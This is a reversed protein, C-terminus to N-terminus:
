TAHLSLSTARHVGASLIRRFVHLSSWWERIILFCVGAYQTEGHASSCHNMFDLTPCMVSRQKKSGRNMDFSFSRTNAIIWHYLDLESAGGKPEAEYGKRAAIMYHSDETWESTASGLANALSQPMYPRITAASQSRLSWWLLMGQCERLSPWCASYVQYEARHHAHMYGLFSALQAQPQAAQLVPHAKIFNRNAFIMAPEPVDILVTDRTVDCTTVLGLGRGPLSAPTVNVMSTGKQRALTLCAALDVAPQM